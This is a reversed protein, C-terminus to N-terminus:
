HHSLTWDFHQKPPSVLRRVMPVKTAARSDIVRRISLSPLEGVPGFWCLECLSHTIELLLIRAPCEGLLKWLCSFGTCFSMLLRGEKQIHLYKDIFALLGVSESSLLWALASCTDFQRIRSPLQLTGRAWSHWSTCCHKYVQRLYGELLEATRFWHTGRGGLIFPQRALQGACNITAFHVHSSVHNFWQASCLNKLLNSLLCLLLTDDLM